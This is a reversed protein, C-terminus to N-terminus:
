SIQVRLKQSWNSCSVFFSLYFLKTFFSCSESFNKTEFFSWFHYIRLFWINPWFNVWALDFIWFDRFISSMVRFGTTESSFLEWLIDRFFKPDFVFRFLNLGGGTFNKKSPPHEQQFLAGFGLFPWFWTKKVKQAQVYSEFSKKSYQPWM